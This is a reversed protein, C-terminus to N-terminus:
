LCYLNIYKRYFQWDDELCDADLNKLLEKLSSENYIDAINIDIDALTQKEYDLTFGYAETGQQLCLQMVDDIKASQNRFQLFKKDRLLLGAQWRAWLRRLSDLQDRRYNIAVTTINDPFANKVLELTHHQYTGIWLNKQLSNLLIRLYDMHQSWDILRFTQGLDRQIERVYSVHSTNGVFTQLDKCIIEVSCAKEFAPGGRNVFMEIFIDSTGAPTCSCFYLKTM